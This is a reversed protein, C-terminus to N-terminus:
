EKVKRKASWAEIHIAFVATEDREQPTIPRYDVGPELGPFYKDLLGQLAREKAAPDALVYARGFVVVGTYEVSFALATKAPLWRGRWDVELCVRPNQQVNTLTRGQTATHFYIREGDYWFTNASIFPQDNVSTAIRCVDAQRLLEAIEADDTIARDARRIVVLEHPSFSTAM